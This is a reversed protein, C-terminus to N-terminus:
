VDETAAYQLLLDVEDEFDDAKGWRICETIQDLSLQEPQSVRWAAYLLASMKEAGLQEEVVNRFVRVNDGGPPMLRGRLRRLRELLAQARGREQLAFVDREGRIPIPPRLSQPTQDQNSELEPAEDLSEEEPLPLAGRLAGSRGPNGLPNAHSLQPGPKGEPPAHIPMTGSRPGTGMRSSGSSAGPAEEASPSFAGGPTSREHVLQLRLQELAQRLNLGDLTRVGLREMAQRPNLGLVAIQAIFQKRDLPTGSGAAVMDSPPAPTRGGGSSGPRSLAGQGGALTPAHEFTEDAHGSSSPSQQVALAAPQAALEDIKRNLHQTMQELGADAQQLLREVEESSAGPRVPITVEITRVQGGVSFQISQKLWIRDQAEQPGM